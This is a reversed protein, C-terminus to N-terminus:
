GKKKKALEAKSELHQGKKIWGGKGLPAGAGASRNEILTVIMGARTDM